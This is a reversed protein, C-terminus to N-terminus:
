VWCRFPNGYGDREWKSCIEVPDASLEIAAAAGKGVSQCGM